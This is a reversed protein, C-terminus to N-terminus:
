FRLVSRSPPNIQIPAIFLCLLASSDSPRSLQVVRVLQVLGGLLVLVVLVHTTVLPQEVAGPLLGEKSTVVTEEVDRKLQFVWKAGVKKGARLRKCKQWTGEM